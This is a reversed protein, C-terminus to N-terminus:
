HAAPATNAVSAPAKTPEAKVDGAPKTPSAAPTSDGCAALFAASAGVASAFGLTRYWHIRRTTM